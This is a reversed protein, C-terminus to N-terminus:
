KAAQQLQYNIFTAHGRLCSEFSIGKEKADKRINEKWKADNRINIEQVIRQAEDLSLSVKFKNRNTYTLFKINEMLLTEYPINLRESTERINSAWYDKKLIENKYYLTNVWKEGDNLKEFYPQYKLSWTYKGNDWLNIDLSLNREKAQKTIKVLWSSDTMIKNEVQMIALQLPPISDLVDGFGQINKNRIDNFVKEDLLFIFNLSGNNASDALEKKVKPNKLLTNKTLISRAEYDSIKEAQLGWGKKEKNMFFRVHGRLHDYYNLNKDQAEQAVLAKNKNHYLINKNKAYCAEEYESYESPLGTEPAYFSYLYDIFGFSFNDLNYPDIVVIVLETEEVEQFINKEFINSSELENELDYSVKFDHWFQDSKFLLDTFGLNYMGLYSSDGVCLLKNTKGNNNEASLIPRENTGNSYNFLLNLEPSKKEAETKGEIIIENLPTKLLTNAKNVIAKIIELQGFQTVESQNAVFFPDTAKANKLVQNGDIYNIDYADILQSIVECNSTKSRDRKLKEGYYNAKTPMTVFLLKTGKYDLRDTVYELRKLHQQIYRTGIFTKGNLEDLHKTKLLEGNAGIILNPSTISGFLSYDIQNKLQELFPRNKFNSKAANEFSEQFTGDNWSNFSFISSEKKNEETQPESFMSLFPPLLTIVFGFLILYKANKM